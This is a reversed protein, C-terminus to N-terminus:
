EARCATLLRVRSAGAARLAEACALATAGTTLVDDILLVRRDKAQATAEFTGRMNLLRERRTQETQPKTHALRRLADHAIALGTHKAVLEGLVAAQNYGRSRERRPHLPVPVILECGDASDAWLGAM